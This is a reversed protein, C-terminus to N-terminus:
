SHSKHSNVLANAPFLTQSIYEYEQLFLESFAGLKSLEEIEFPNYFLGRLSLVLPGEGSRINIVFLHVERAVDGAVYKYRLLYRPKVKTNLRSQRISRELAEEASEGDHLCSTLPQDINKCCDCEKGRLNNEESRFCGTYPRNTLWIKDGMVIAMRVLGNDKPCSFPDQSKHGYHLLWYSVGSTILILAIPLWARFLISDAWGVIMAIIYILLCILSSHLFIASSLNIPRYQPVGFKAIQHNLMWRWGASLTLAVLSLLSHYQPLFLYSLLTGLFLLLNPAYSRLKWLHKAGYIWVVFFLFVLGYLISAGWSSPQIIMLAFPLVFIIWELILPFSHTDKKRKMNIFCVM